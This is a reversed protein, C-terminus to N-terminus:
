VHLHLPFRLKSITTRTPPTPPQQRKVMATLLRRVKDQIQSDMLRIIPHVAISAKGRLIPTSEMRTKLLSHLLVTRTMLERERNVPLFTSVNWSENERNYEGSPYMVGSRPIVHPPPGHYGPHDYGNGNANGTGNGTGHGSGTGQSQGQTSGGSGSSYRGDIHHRPDAFAPTSPVYPSSNLGQVNTGSFYPSSLVTPSVSSLSLRSRHQRSMPDVHFGSSSSPNSGSEHNYEANVQVDTGIECRTFPSM